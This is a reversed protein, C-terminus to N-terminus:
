PAFEVNLTYSGVEDSFFTRVAVYYTGSSVLQSIRFNLFDGSDDDSAVVSCDTHRLEGLTDTNGTTYVTLTGTSPVQVQFYDSDGATEISGNSISNESVSTASTCDNGHDDGGSSSAGIEQLPYTGFAFESSFVQAVGRVNTAGITFELTLNGGDSTYPMLIGLPTLIDEALKINRATRAELTALNLTGLLISAGSRGLTFVSVTVQGASTSPNWLYVRSAMMANNGNVFNAVLITEQGYALQVMLIAISFWLFSHQYTAKM